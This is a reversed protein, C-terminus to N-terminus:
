SAPRPEVSQLASELDSAVSDLRSTPSEEPELDALAGLRVNAARVADRLTRARGRDADDPATAELTTLRDELARAREASVAWGGVAQDRSGARRLEPVLERALWTVEDVAAEFDSQWARRRRSRVLLAAGGALALGLLAVLLWWVWTPM